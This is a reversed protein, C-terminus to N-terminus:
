NKRHLSRKNPESNENRKNDKIFTFKIRTIQPLRVPKKIKRHIQHLKENSHESKPSNKRINSFIQSKFYKIKRDQFCKRQIKMLFRQLDSFIVGFPYGNKTGLGNPYGLNTISAHQHNLIIRSIRSLKKYDFNQSAKKQCEEFFDRFSGGVNFLNFDLEGQCRLLIRYQILEAFLCM